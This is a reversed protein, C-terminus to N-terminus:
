SYEPFDLPALSQYHSTHDPAQLTPLDGKPYGDGDDKLPTSVMKMAMVPKTPIPSLETDDGFGEPMTLQLGTVVTRTALM